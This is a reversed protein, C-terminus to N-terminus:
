DQEGIWEALDNRKGWFDVPKLADYGMGGVLTVRESPRYRYEAGFSLTDEVVRVEKTDGSYGEHTERKLTSAVQLQNTENIRWSTILRGGRSEEDYISTPPHIGYKYSLFGLDGAYENLANDYQDYYLMADLDVHESRYTSNLSTSERQWKTWDWIVYNPITTEPPSVGKNSDQLIYSAWIDWHSNPTIGAILSYKSDNSDSFLRKGEQQPNGQTPTFSKPLRFHDIDRRQVTGKLYFHEQRSGLSAVYTQTSLDYVRDFDLSTELKGEFSEYPKAMRMLVAGGLTNAGLLRSSYGKQITVGELDSTLTRAADASGRYPNSQIIGNVFM